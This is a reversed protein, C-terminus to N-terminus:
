ATKEGGANTITKVGSYIGSAALGYLIGDMVTSFWDPAIPVGSARAGVAIAIGLVLAVMPAFRSPLGVTRAIHVLQTIILVVPFGALLMQTDM